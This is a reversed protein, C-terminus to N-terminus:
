QIDWDVSPIVGLRPHPLAAVLELVPLYLQVQLLMPTSIIYKKGKEYAVLWM